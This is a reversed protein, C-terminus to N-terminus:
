VQCDLISVRSLTEGLHRWCDGEKEELLPDHASGLWFNQQLDASILEFVLGVVQLQTFCKGTQAETGGEPLHARSLVRSM